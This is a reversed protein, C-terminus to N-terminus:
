VHRKAQRVQNRFAAYGSRDLSAGRPVQSSVTGYFRGHTGSADKELSMRCRSLGGIDVDSGTALQKVDSVNHIRYLELPESTFESTSVGFRSVTMLPLGPIYAGRKAESRLGSLTRQWAQGLRSAYSM